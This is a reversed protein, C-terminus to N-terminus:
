CNKTGLHSARPSSVNTNLTKQLSECVREGRMARSARQALSILFDAKIDPLEKNLKKLYENALDLLGQITIM